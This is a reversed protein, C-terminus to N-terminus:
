YVMFFDSGFHGGNRIGIRRGATLTDRESTERQQEANLKLDCSRRDPYIGENPDKGYCGQPRDGNHEHMISDSQSAELDDGLVGHVLNTKNTQKNTQKNTAKQMVLEFGECGTPAILSSNMFGSCLYLIYVGTNEIDKYRYPM